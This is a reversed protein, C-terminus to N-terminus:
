NKLFSCNYPLGQSPSLLNVVAGVAWNPCSWAPNPGGCALLNVTEMTVIMVTSIVNNM